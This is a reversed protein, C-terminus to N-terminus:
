LDASLSFLARLGVFIHLRHRLHAWSGVKSLAEHNVNNFLARPATQCDHFLKKTTTTTAVQLIINRCFTVCCFMYHTGHTPEFSCYLGMLIAFNARFFFLIQSTHTSCVHLPQICQNAPLCKAMTASYNAWRGSISWVFKIEAVPERWHNIMIYFKRKKRWVCAIFM